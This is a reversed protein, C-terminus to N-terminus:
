KKAQNNIQAIVNKVDVAMPNNSDLKLFRQFAQKADEPKNQRLLAYGLVIHVGANTEKLAIAKRAHMEAESFRNLAFCVKALEFHADPNLPDLDAFRSFPKEALNARNTRAYLVGLLYQARPMRDEIEVAKVLSSEAQPGQSTQLQALGLLQYAEAYRPYLSIAKQLHPIAGTFDNGNVAKQGIDFENRAEVPIAAVRPDIVSPPPAESGPVTTGPMARLTITEFTRCPNVSIDVRGWVPRFGPAEIKYQIVMCPAGAHFKGMRDTMAHTRWTTEGDVWLEVQIFQAPTNNEYRVQGQFNVGATGSEDQGQALVAAILLVFANAVDRMLKKCPSIAM